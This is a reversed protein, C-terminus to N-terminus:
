AGGLPSLVKGYGAESSKVAGAIYEAINLDPPISRMLAM